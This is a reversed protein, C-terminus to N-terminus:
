ITCGIRFQNPSVAFILMIQRAATHFANQRIPNQLRQLILQLLLLISTIRLTIKVYPHPKDGSMNMLSINRAPIFGAGVISLRSNLM